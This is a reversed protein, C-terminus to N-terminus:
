SDVACLKVIVQDFRLVAPDEVFFLHAAVSAPAEESVLVSAHLLYVAVVVRWLEISNLTQELVALIACSEELGVVTSEGFKFHELVDM